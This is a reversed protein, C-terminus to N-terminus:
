GQKELLSPEIGNDWIEKADKQCLIGYISGDGIKRFPPENFLSDSMEKSNNFYVVRPQHQIFAIMAGTAGCIGRDFAARYGLEWFDLAKSKTEFAIIRGDSGCQIYIEYDNKLLICYVPCGEKFETM